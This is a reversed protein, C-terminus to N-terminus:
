CEISLTVKINIKIFYESYQTIGLVVCSRNMSELVDCPEPM